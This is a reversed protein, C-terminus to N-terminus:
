KLNAYNKDFVAKIGELDIIRREIYKMLDPTLLKIKDITDLLSNIRYELIFRQAYIYDASDEDIHKKLLLRVDDITKIEYKHQIKIKKLRSLLYELRRTALDLRRKLDEEGQADKIKEKLELYPTTFKYTIQIIGEEELFNAWENIVHEPLALQHAAEELTLKKRLKVLEVLSDIATAINIPM